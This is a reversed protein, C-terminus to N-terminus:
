WNPYAVPDVITYPYLPNDTFILESAIIKSLIVKEPMCNQTTWWVWEFHVLNLLDDNNEDLDVIRIDNDGSDMINLTQFLWKNIM